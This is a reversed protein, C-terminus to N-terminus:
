AERLGEGSNESPIFGLFSLIIFLVCLSLPLVNFAVLSIDNITDTNCEWAIGSYECVRNEINFSSITLYAFVIFNIFMLTIRMNRDLKFINAMNVFFLVWGFILFLIYITLIM